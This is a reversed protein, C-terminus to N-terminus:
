LYRQKIKDLKQIVGASGRIGDVTLRVYTKNKGAFDILETLYKQMMIKLRFEVRTIQANIAAADSTGAKAYLNQLQDLITRLHHQSPYGIPAKKGGLVLPIGNDFMNNYKNAIEDLDKKAQVATESGMKDIEYVARTYDLSNKGAIELDHNVRQLEDINIAMVEKRNLNYLGLTAVNAAKNLAKDVKSTPPTYYEISEQIEAREDALRFTRKLDATILIVAVAKHGANTPDYVVPSAPPFDTMLEFLLKYEADTLGKFEPEDMLAIFALAEKIRTSDLPSTLFGNVFVWLGGNRVLQARIEVSKIINLTFARTGHPGSVPRKIANFNDTARKKFKPQLLVIEKDATTQDIAFGKAEVKERFAKATKESDKKFQDINKVAGNIEIGLADEPRTDLKRGIVNAANDRASVIDNIFNDLGGTPLAVADDLTKQIIALEENQKIGKVLLLRTRAKQLIADRNTNNVVGGLTRVQELMEIRVDEVELRISIQVREERTLKNRRLEGNEDITKRIIEGVKDPVKLDGSALSDLRTQYILIDVVLRASLRRAFNNRETPPAITTDTLPLIDVVLKEFRNFEKSPDKLNASIAQILWGETDKLETGAVITPTNILDVLIQYAGDKKLLAIFEQINQNSKGGLLQSFSERKNLYADLVNPMHFDVIDAEGLAGGKLGTK